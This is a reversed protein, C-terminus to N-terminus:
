QGEGFFRNNAQPSNLAPYFIAANAITLIRRFIVEHFQLDRSLGGIQHRVVQLIKSGARVANKPPRPRRERNAGWKDSM